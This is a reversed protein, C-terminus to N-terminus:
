HGPTKPLTPHFQAWGGQQGIQWKGNVKQAKAVFTGGNDLAWVKGTPAEVTTGLVDALQQAAGEAHAGTDCAILRVPGGEYGAKKMADAITKPGVDVWKGSVNLSFSNAEGHCVVDFFGPKPKIKLAQMIAKTDNALLYAKTPPAAMAGVPPKAGTGVGGEAVAGVTAQADEVAGVGTLQSRPIFKAATVPVGEAVLKQVNGLADGSLAMGFQAYHTGFTQEFQELSANRWEDVQIRAYAHAVLNDYGQSRSHKYAEEYISIIWTRIRKTDEGYEPNQLDARAGTVFAYEGNPDYNGDWHEWVYAQQQEVTWRDSGGADSTGETTGDDVTASGGTTVEVYEGEGPAKSVTHPHDEPVVPPAGVGALGEILGGVLGGEPEHESDAAGDDGARKALVIGTTGLALGAGLLISWLWTLSGGGQRSQSEPPAAVAPGPSQPGPSNAPGPAPTGAAIVIPPGIEYTRNDYSTFPRVTVSSPWPSKGTLTFPASTVPMRFLCEPSGGPGGTLLTISGPGCSLGAVNPLLSPELQVGFAFAPQPGRATYTGSITNGNITAQVMEQAAAPHTGLAVVVVPLTVGSLVAVWSTAFTRTDSGRRHRRFVM